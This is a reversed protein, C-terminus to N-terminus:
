RGTRTARRTGLHSCSRTANVFRFTSTSRWTFSWRGARGQGARKSTASVPPGPDGPRVRPDPLVSRVVLCSVGGGVAPEPHREATYRDPADRSWARVRVSRSGPRPLRPLVPSRLGRRGPGTGPSGGRLLPLTFVARPFPFGSPFQRPVPIPCRGFPVFRLVGSSPFGPFASSPPSGPPCVPFRLFARLPFRLVHPSAGSWGPSLGPIRPRVCRRHRPCPRQGPFM